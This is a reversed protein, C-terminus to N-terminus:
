VGSTIRRFRSSLVRHVLIKASSTAKDLKSAELFGEHVLTSRLNYLRKAERVTETVDSDGQLEYAVVNRIQLGISEDQRFLLERELAELSGVDAHNEEISEIVSRTEAKWRALLDLATQSKKAPATLAELAMILTLFRARGSHEVFYAGYLELATALKPDSNLRSADAFNAGALLIELAHRAPITTYVSAFGGTITRLKKESPFIAVASGDIVGDLPGDFTAGFSRSFNEAAVVPDPYYTIARPRLAVDAAIGRELLLHALAAPLREVFTTAEQESSFGIVTLIHYPDNSKISWSLKGDSTAFEDLSIRTNTPVRFPTRVTYMAPSETLPFVRGARM